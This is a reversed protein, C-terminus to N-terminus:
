FSHGQPGFSRLSPSPVLLWNPSLSRSPLLAGREEWVTDAPLHTFIEWDGVSSSQTGAAWGLSLQNKAGEKPVPFIISQAPICPRIRSLHVGSYISPPYVSAPPRPLPPPPPHQSLTSSDPHLALHVSIRACAAGFVTVVCDPCERLPVCDDADVCAGACGCMRACTCVCERQCVRLCMCMLEGKESVMLFYIIM